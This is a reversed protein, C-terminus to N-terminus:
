KKAKSEKSVNKIRELKNQNNLKSFQDKTLDYYLLLKGVFQSFNGITYKLSGETLITEEREDLNISKM